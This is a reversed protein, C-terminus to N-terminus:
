TFYNFNWNLKFENDNELRTIKEILPWRHEAGVLFLARDYKKLYCYNYINKIMENEREDNFEKWDNYRNTLTKHNINKVLESELFSKRELLKKCQQSNLYPFGSQAPQYNWEIGLDKYELSHYIFINSMFNFDNFFVEQTIDDRDMDVPFHDISNKQLYKKITKTELSYSNFDEYLAAFKNPPVEEFIVDPSIREIIDYLENSNCIGKEYHGTAILTIM